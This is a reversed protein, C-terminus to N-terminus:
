GVIQILTRIDGLVPIALRDEAVKMMVAEKVSSFSRCTDVQVGLAPKGSRLDSTM